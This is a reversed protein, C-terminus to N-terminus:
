VNCLRVEAYCKAILVSYSSSGKHPLQSDNQMAQSSEPAAKEEETLLSKPTSQFDPTSKDEETQLSETFHEKESQKRNKVLPKKPDISLESHKDISKSSSFTARNFQRKRHANMNCLMGFESKVKESGFNCPSKVGPKEPTALASEPTSTKNSQGLIAKQTPASLQRLLGKAQDPFTGAYALYCERATARTEAAAENLLGILMEEIDETFKELLGRPYSRLICELYQCCKGRLVWNKTKAEELIRSLLRCAGLAKSPRTCM